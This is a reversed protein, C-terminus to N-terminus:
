WLWDGSPSSYLLSLPDWVKQALVACLKEPSWTPYMTQGCFTPERLFGWIGEWYKMKCKMQGIFVDSFQL